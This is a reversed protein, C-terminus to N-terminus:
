KIQTNINEVLRCGCVAQGDKFLAKIANKDPEYTTKVKLLEAPIYKVDDVVLQESKRFSVACKATSFKQGDMNDALMQKFFAIKKETSKRRKAIQEEEAKFALVDSALNKIYCAINEVKEEFAMNLDDWALANLLEGTEEDIEYEFNEIEQRIQYLNAM